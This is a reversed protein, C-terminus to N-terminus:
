PPRCAICDCDVHGSKLRVPPCARKRRVDRIAANLVGLNHGALHEAVVQFLEENERARKVEALLEKASRSTIQYDDRALTELEALREDTMRETTM